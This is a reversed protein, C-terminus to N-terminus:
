LAYSYKRAKTNFYVDTQGNVPLHRAITQRHKHIALTIEVVAHVCIYVAMVARCWTYRQLDPLVMFMALLLTIAADAVM